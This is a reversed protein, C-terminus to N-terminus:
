IYKQIDVLTEAVGALMPLIEEEPESLDPVMIVRMGARYASVVGNPSDEVAACDAPDEGLQRCAEIYVDPMPKGNEVNSVSIVRDFKEFIGIRCLFAKAREFDTATAVATRYGGRKLFDLIEDVGPKKEIGYKELAEHLRVRRTSHFYEFDFDAGYKELLMPKSFKRNLSRMSLITELPIEYGMERALEMGIRIYHKETDILTGDMDFIVAKIKRDM